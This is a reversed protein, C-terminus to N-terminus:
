RGGFYGLFKGNRDFVVDADGGPMGPVKSVTVIYGNPYGVPYGQPVPRLGDATVVAWSERAKAEFTAKEFFEEVTPSCGLITCLAILCFTKKM